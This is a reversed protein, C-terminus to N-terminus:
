FIKCKNFNLKDFTHTHIYISVSKWFGSKGNIHDLPNELNSQFKEHNNFRQDKNPYLQSALYDDSEISNFEIPSKGDQNQNTTSRVFKFFLHKGLQIIAHNPIIMPGTIRADNVRVLAPGPPKAFGDLSPTLLLSYQGFHEATGSSVAKPTQWKSTTTNPLISTSVVM